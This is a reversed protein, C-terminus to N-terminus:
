RIWVTEMGIFGIIYDKEILPSLFQCKIDDNECFKILEEEGRICSTDSFVFEELDIKKALFELTIKELEEKISEVCSNCWEYVLNKRDESKHFIVV